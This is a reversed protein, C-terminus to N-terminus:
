TNNCENISLNPRYMHLEFLGTELKLHEYVRVILLGCFSDHSRCTGYMNQNVKPQSPGEYIHFELIFKDLVTEHM